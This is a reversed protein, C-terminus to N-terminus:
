DKKRLLNNFIEPTIQKELDKEIFMLLAFGQILSLYASSLIEPDGNVVDGSKQAESILHGLKDYHEMREAMFEM